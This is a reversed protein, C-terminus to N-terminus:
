NVKAFKAQGLINGSTDKILMVYIGLQYSSVDDTWSAASQTETKMLVGLSNYIDVVYTPTNISSSTMNVHIISSAPNPYLTLAGNPTTNNYGVTVNASYTIAGTISNQALRYTNNGIVPHTDIFGYKTISTDSQVAYLSDYGGNANLKQLTYGTYTGANVATWNLQVGTSVKQGSFTALVYKAV